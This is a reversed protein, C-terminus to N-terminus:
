FRVRLGLRLIRPNMIELVSDFGRTGTAEVDYQRGLVTAANFVNFIDVDFVVSSRRLQVTKEFRLDFSTVAPLRNADLDDVVLVDKFTRVPDSTVVDNVHYPKGFGQRTVLNAGIGTDWPGQWFGNAIFQYKPAILYVQSKGSGTTARSVVGDDIQPAIRQSTPDQISLSPDTFHEREDNWSFGVRAMWRDALRKTGSLEFGRFARHYGERNATFTGGGVPAVAPDLAYFPVDYPGTQPTNGTLRGDLLFDESTAGIIPLPDGQAGWLAGNFRRWTFSGSVAFNRIIERDAGIVLEHTRPAKLDPDIANVTTTPNDPDIGVSGIPTSDVESREIRGDLNGDIGIYYAYGYSNAAVTGATAVQLQSAFSAYSARLITKREEDLAYSFGVRPSLANWTVVNDLAPSTYAPMLDPVLQHAPVDGERVSNTTHDFRLGVNLTLRNWTITDNAYLYNYNASNEQIYPRFIAMIYGGPGLDPIEFNIVGGGWSFDTFDNVRRWAGGFRVEHRGHFWNADVNITKQPRDTVLYYSSGSQLGNADIFVQTTRGGKPELSFPSDVYAGRATVFLNNGPIWNVEGKYTKTPGDQDVTSEPAVLPSADRGFKKKNGSFFTFNARVAENAQVNTKFATNELITRDLVDNITRIRVDTKGWSGWAWWKDKVLPGGLEFGYDSYQDTRNGKGNPGAVAALSDDINNSQMSENEFFLRASGHPTNTGTRLVFNLQVGPTAAQADAGGTAVQIEQFMDFDYYTPSSGLANMDTIPIGDLYWTNDGFDAGKATYNSQQGSESGGVNVRDVVIGPVTQLVVWPDRSSPVKELEDVTINTAISQRKPDITTVEAQVNVQETVGGVGMTVRLPVSSGVGVPVNQNVYDAFGALSAKVQYVGPALNLFRAEGQADTVAEHSQPGTATVAVGPLVAGTSDAVVVDIRGTHVQASAPAASLIALAWLAVVGPAWQRIINM